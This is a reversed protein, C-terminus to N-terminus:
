GAAPVDPPGELTLVLEGALAHAASVRRREYRGDGGLVMVVVPSRASLEATLARLRFATVPGDGPRIAAPDVDGGAAAGVVTVM